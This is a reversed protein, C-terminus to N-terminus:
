KLAVSLEANWGTRTSSMSPCRGTAIAVADVNTASTAALETALNSVTIEQQIDALALVLRQSPPPRTGVRVRMTASKFGEYRARLEYQGPTVASFRFAGTADASSTQVVAGAANVLDISAGALLGGTQDQVIGSVAVAPSQAAAHTAVVVALAVMAFRLPIRLAGASM